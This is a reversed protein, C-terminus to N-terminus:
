RTEIDKTRKFLTKSSISSAYLGYQRIDKRSENKVCTIIYTKINNVDGDYLLGNEVMNNIFEKTIKSSNVSREDIIAVIDKELITINGGIHLFM